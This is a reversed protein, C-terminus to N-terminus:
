QRVNHEAFADLVSRKKSPYTVEGVPMLSPPMELPEEAPAAMAHAQDMAYAQEVGHLPEEVECEM